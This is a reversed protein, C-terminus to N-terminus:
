EGYMEGIRQQHSAPLAQSYTTTIVHAPLPRAVVGAVLLLHHENLDIQWSGDAHQHWQVHQLPEPSTLAFVDTAGAHPGAEMSGAGCMWIVPDGYRQILHAMDAAAAQSQPSQLLMTGIPHDDFKRWQVGHTGWRMVAPCGFTLADVVCDTIAHVIRHRFDVDMDAICLSDSRGSPVIIATVTALPHQQIHFHLSSCDISQPDVIDCTVLVCLADDGRFGLAHIAYTENHPPAPIYQSASGVFWDTSSM